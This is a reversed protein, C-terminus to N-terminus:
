VEVIFKSQNSVVINTEQRASRSTLHAHMALVAVPGEAPAYVSYESDGSCSREPPVRVVKFSSPTRLERDTTVPCPVGVGM